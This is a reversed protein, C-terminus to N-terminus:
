QLKCTFAFSFFFAGGDTSLATPWESFSFFLARDVGGASCRGSEIGERVLLEALVCTSIKQHSIGSTTKIENRPDSRSIRNRKHPLGQVVTDFRGLWEPTKQNFMSQPEEETDHNMGM